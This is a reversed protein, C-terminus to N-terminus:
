PAIRERLGAAGNGQQTDEDQQPRVDVSLTNLMFNAAVHFGAAEGCAYEHKDLRTVAQRDKMGSWWNILERLRSGRPGALVERWWASDDPGWVPPTAGERPKFPHLTASM